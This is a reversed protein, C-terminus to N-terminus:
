NIIHGQDMQPSQKTIEASGVNEGIRIMFGFYATLLFLINIAFHKFLGNKAFIVHM